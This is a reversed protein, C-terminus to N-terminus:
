AVVRACSTSMLPLGSCPLAGCLTRQKEEMQKKLEEAQQQRAQAKKAAEAAAIPDMDNARFRTFRVGGAM